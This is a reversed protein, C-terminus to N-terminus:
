RLAFRLVGGSRRGALVVVFCYSFKRSLQQLTKDSILIDSCLQSDNQGYIIAPMVTPSPAGVDRKGCAIGYPLTKARGCLRGPNDLWTGGFSPPPIYLLRMAVLRNGYPREEGSVAM